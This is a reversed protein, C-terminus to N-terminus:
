KKESIYYNFILKTPQFWFATKGTTPSEFAFDSAMM